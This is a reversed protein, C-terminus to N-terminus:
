SPDAPTLGPDNLDDDFTVTENRAKENPFTQPKQGPWIVEVEASFVGPIDTDGDDAGGTSPQWEYYAKGCDEDFEWQATGENFTRGASPAVVMAVCEVLRGDETATPELRLWLTVSDAGGLPVPGIADTVTFTIQPSLDGRKMTRPM